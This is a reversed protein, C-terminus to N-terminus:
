GATIDLSIDIAKVSHTLAGVSIFDLGIKGISPIRELTIGGSAELQAKGSNIVVAEAMEENTMNDLLIYDAGAEVAERVEDLTDAEVEVELDPFKSRSNEVSRTIGGPGEMGALERHNDKIMIRDYLGIRHNTAGGASVAYKELNRWGPTTKRTDLIVTNSEALAKAFKAAATAVGCLRQLFNLATREATLLCAAPGYIEAIIAGPECADGDQLKYTFQIDSNVKKFVAEAVPLGAIICNERSILVGNAQLNEPIVSLSTADGIKGLDEDLALQILTDIREKDLLVKETM